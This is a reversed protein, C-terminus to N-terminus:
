VLSGTITQSPQSSPNLLFKKSLHNANKFAISLILKIRNLQNVLIEGVVGVRPKKENSIKLQDFDRVIQHIYKKLSGSDAHILHENCIEVWKGFLANASGRIAEYPRVRHLVRMLLDGYTLGM